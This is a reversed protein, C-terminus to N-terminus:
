LPEADATDMVRRVGIPQRLPAAPAPPTPSAPPSRSPAPRPTSTSSNSAPWCDAPREASPAETVQPATGDSTVAQALEPGTLVCGDVHEGAAVLDRHLADRYALHAKIEEPKWGTCRDRSGAQYDITLLYRM